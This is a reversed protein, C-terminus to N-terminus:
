HNDVVVGVGVVEVVVLELQFVLSEVLEVLNRQGYALEQLELVVVETVLVLDSDLIQVQELQVLVEVQFRGVVVVVLAVVVVVFPLKDVEVEVVVGVGEVVVLELRFVLQEVLEVLEGLNHREDVLGVLGLVVVELGLVLVSDLIQEELLQVLFRVEVVVVEVFPLKGVVVVVQVVVV